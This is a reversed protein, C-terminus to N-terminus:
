FSQRLSDEVGLDRTELDRQQQEEAVQGMMASGQDHAQPQM